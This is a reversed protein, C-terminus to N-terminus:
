ILWDSLPVTMEQSIQESDELSLLFHKGWGSVDFYLNSFLNLVGINYILESIYIIVHKKHNVM